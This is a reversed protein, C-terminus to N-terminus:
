IIIKNDKVMKIFCEGIPTNQVFKWMRERCKDTIIYMPPNKISGDVGDGGKEIFCLALFEDMKKYQTGGIGLDLIKLLDYRTKKPRIFYLKPLLAVIEIEEM